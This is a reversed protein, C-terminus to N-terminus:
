SPELADKVHGLQNRVGNIKGHFQGTGVASATNLDDLNNLDDILDEIDEEANSSIAFGFLFFFIISILFKRCRLM